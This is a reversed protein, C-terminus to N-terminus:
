QWGYRSGATLADVAADAFRAAAFTQVTQAHRVIGKLSMDIESQAEAHDKFGHSRHRPTRHSNNNAMDVSGKCNLAYAM